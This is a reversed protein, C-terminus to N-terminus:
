NESAPIQDTKLQRQCFGRLFGFGEEWEDSLVDWSWTPHLTELRIQRGPELLGRKFSRRQTGVWVGLMYGDIIDDKGVRADGKREVFDATREATTVAVATIGARRAERAWTGSIPTGIEAPKWGRGPQFTEIVLAHDRRTTAADNM